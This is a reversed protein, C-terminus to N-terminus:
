APIPLDGFLDFKSPEEDQAMAPVALALFLGCLLVLRRM